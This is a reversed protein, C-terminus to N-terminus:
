KKVGGYNLFFQLRSDAEKLFNLQSFLLAVGRQDLVIYRRPFLRQVWQKINKM